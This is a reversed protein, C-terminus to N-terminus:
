HKTAEHFIQLCVCYVSQLYKDIQILIIESKLCRLFINTHLILDIGSPLSTLSQWNLLCASLYVLSGFPQSVPRTIFFKLSRFAKAEM